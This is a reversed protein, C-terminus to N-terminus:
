GAAGDVHRSTPDLASRFPRLPHDCSAAFDSSGHRGSHRRSRHPPASERLLRRLRLSGHRGPRRRSRHPPAPERLLRRLRHWGQRAPRRRSRLRAAAPTGSEAAARPRVSGAAGRMPTDAPGEYRLVPAAADGAATTSSTGAAWTPTAGAVLAAGLASVGAITRVAAKVGPLRCWSLTRLLRPFSAWSALGVATWVIWLYAGIGCLVERATAFTALLAGRAQWWILIRDPHMLPPPGLVGSGLLHLLGTVSGLGVWLLVTIARIRVRRM